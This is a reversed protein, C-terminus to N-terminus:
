KHVSKDYWCVGVQKEMAKFGVSEYIKAAHYHEDAVMVLTDVNMNELAYKASKYVLTNCVGQRQFKPSTSVIQYRAVNDEVFIGLSGVLENNLFAGFWKGKDLKILKKYQDMQTKYFSYWTSKSLHRAGCATQIDIVKQFNDESDILKMEVNQNFKKSREVVKAVLVISEDLNFGHEIFENVDGLEGDITDWALTIHHRKPTKFEKNFLSKWSQFDGQKPAQKFLLLNGWFFNPNSKTTVVFYKDKEVVSGDYRTFIFDTKYGLSNIKM